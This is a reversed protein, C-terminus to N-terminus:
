QKQEMKKTVNKVIESGEGDMKKLFIIVCGFTFSEIFSAFFRWESKREHLARITDGNVVIGPQGNNREGKM